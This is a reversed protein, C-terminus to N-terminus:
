SSGRTLSSLYNKLISSRRHILPFELVKKNAQIAVLHTDRIKFSVGEKDNKKMLKRIEQGCDHLRRRLDDHPNSDLEGEEIYTYKGNVM